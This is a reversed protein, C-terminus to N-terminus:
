QKTALGKTRFKTKFELQVENFHGHANPLNSCLVLLRHPLDNPRHPLKTKQKEGQQKRISIDLVLVFQGNPYLIILFSVSLLFVPLSFFLACYNMSIHLHCLPNILINFIYCRMILDIFKSFGSIKIRIQHKIQPVFIIM